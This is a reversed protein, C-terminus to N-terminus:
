QYDKISLTYSIMKGNDGVIEVHYQMENEVDSPQRSVFIMAQHIGDKIGPDETNTTYAVSSVQMPDASKLSTITSNQAKGTFNNLSDLLSKVSQFVLNMAPNDQDKQETTNIATKNEVTNEPLNLHDIHDPLNKEKDAAHSNSLTGDVPAKEKKLATKQDEIKGSKALVPTEDNTAFWKNLIGEDQATIFSLHNQTATDPSHGLIQLRLFIALTFIMLMGAFLKYSKQPRALFLRQIRKKLDRKKGIAALALAGGTQLNALKLLAHAYLAPQYQYQMVWDDCSKERELHINKSLLHSFPNFFLIIEVISQLINWLYDARRIHAMEHLIVAELQEQTLHNISAMPLLIVPKLFGITMPSGALRSIYVHIKRKLNMQGAIRQIFIRLGADAKILHQHRLQQTAHFSITWRIICFITGAIYVLSLISFINNWLNPNYLIAFFSADEALYFPASSLVNGAHFLGMGPNFYNSLFTGIFLFGMFFQGLISLYYKKTSSSTVVQLMKVFLFICLGQFLSQVMTRGLVQFFIHHFIIEM